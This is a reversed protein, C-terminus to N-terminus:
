ITVLKQAVVMVMHGFWSRPLVMRLLRDVLARPYRSDEVLLYLPRLPTEQVFTMVANDYVYELLRFGANTLLFELEKLSYCDEFFDLCSHTQYRCLNACFQRYPNFAPVSIFVKGGPRLVRNAEALIVEQGSTFHEIVGLSIYGDFYAYQYPLERIDGRHFPVQPFRRRLREVTRAAYDLGYADFGHARLALVVQGVGCGAELLRAGRSLHKLYL